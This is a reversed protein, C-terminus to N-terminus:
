GAMTPEIDDGSVAVAGARLLEALLRDALAERELVRISAPLRVSTV